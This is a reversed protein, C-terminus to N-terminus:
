YLSVFSVIVTSVAVLIGVAVLFGIAELIDLVGKDNM